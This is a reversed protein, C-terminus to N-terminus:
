AKSHGLVGRFNDEDVLTGGGAPNGHDCLDDVLVAYAELKGRIRLLYENLEWAIMSPGVVETGRWANGKLCRM